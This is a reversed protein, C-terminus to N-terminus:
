TKKRNVMLNYILAGTLTGSSNALVDLWEFARGLHMILQFVEMLIGWGIAFIIISYNIYPKYESHLSWCILWTFGMYMCFHVLKDVGEFLSIQPVDEAPMLSLVIIIGLYILSLTIRVKQNVSFFFSFM